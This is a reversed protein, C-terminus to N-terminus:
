SEGPLVWWRHANHLPGRFDRNVGQVRGSAATVVDPSYLFVYPLQENLVAAWEQYAPRRLAADHAARGAEALSQARAAEPGVTDECFDVFNYLEGCRWIASQDPDAVLDWGLLGLDYDRPIQLLVRQLITEFGAAEVRVDFGVANLWGAIMGAAERRRDDGDPYLLRVSLTECPPVGAGGYGPGGCGRTDIGGSGDLDRERVGDGDGDTWGAEALLDRAAQPDHPYHQLGGPLPWGPPLPADVVRGRGDLLREVLAARDIARAMAQRVRVDQFRPQNLNIYLFQYGFGPAQWVQVGPIEELAAAQEPELPSSAVGALDVEGAALAGDIGAPDVVRFLVADVLAPGAHYDEFRELRVWEGPRYEALRFPGTGVPSRSEGAEAWQDVPVGEWRHRPLIPATGIHGLVPGHVEDFRFVVTGEDLAEVAGSEAAWRRWAEVKRQATGAGGEGDIGAYTELLARAGRLSVFDLRRDGEYGPHLLSRFTFVVDAATFPQGDHWRVGPKLRFTIELGDASVRYDEALAGGTGAAYPGDAGTWELLSGYVLRAVDLDAAGAAAWPNFVGAPAEWQAVTVTGGPVPEPPAAPPAAPPNQGGAPSPPTGTGCAAALLATLICTIVGPFRALRGMTGM